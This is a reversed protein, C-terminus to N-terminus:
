KGYNGSQHCIQLITIAKWRYNFERELKNWLGSHKYGKEKLEEYRKLLEDYEEASYCHRGRKSV